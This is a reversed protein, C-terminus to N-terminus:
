RLVAFAIVRGPDADTAPDPLPGLQSVNLEKESLTCADCSRKSKPECGLRYREAFASASACDAVSRAVASCISKLTRKAYKSARAFPARALTARSVRSLRIRLRCCVSPKTCAPVRASISRTWARVSVALARTNSILASLAYWVDFTFRFEAM